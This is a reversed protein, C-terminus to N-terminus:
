FLYVKMSISRVELINFYIHCVKRIRRNRSHYGKKVRRNRSHCVKRIRRNRSQYGKKVRRNRTHMFM